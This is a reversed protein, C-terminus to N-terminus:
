QYQVPFNKDVTMDIAAIARGADATQKMISCLKLLKQHMDGHSLLIREGSALHVDLYDSHEIDVNKVRVFRSLIPDGCLSLMELAAKVGPDAISVGPRLGKERFGVIYPLQPSISTPGLVCGERDLGLPYTGSEGGLRAVATREKIHIELTDPLRRRIEVSSVVPVSLLDERVKQLNVAFLNMGEELHAYERIHQADLKGDSDLDMHRIVFLENESFLHAGTAKASTSLVWAAGAAVLTIFVIAGVRHMRDKRQGSVRATVQLITGRRSDKRRNFLRRKSPENDLEYWM